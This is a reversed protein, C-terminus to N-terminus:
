HQVIRGLDNYIMTNVYNIMELRMWKLADRSVKKQCTMSIPILYANLADANPADTEVRGIEPETQHRSYM